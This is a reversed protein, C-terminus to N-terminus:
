LGGVGPCMLHWLGDSTNFVFAFFPMLHKQKTLTKTQLIVIRMLCHVLTIEPGVKMTPTNLFGKENDGAEVRLKSKVFKRGDCAFLLGITKRHQRVQCSACSVMKVTLSTRLSPYGLCTCLCLDSGM